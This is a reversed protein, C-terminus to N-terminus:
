FQSILTRDKESPVFIRSPKSKLVYKESARVFSDLTKRGSRSYRQAIVDHAYFIKPIKKLFRSYIFTQSFDLVMLDYRNKKILNIVYFLRFFNFRVSFLPYIFPFLICNLIKILSSNRFTRVVTVNQREYEYEDDHKYRSFILDVNNREALDNILQRSFNEGAGKRGPVFATIFLIKKM